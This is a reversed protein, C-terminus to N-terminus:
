PFCTLRILPDTFCIIARLLHPLENIPALHTVTAQPKIKPSLTWELNLGCASVAPKLWCLCPSMHSTKIDAYNLILVSWDARGWQGVMQPRESCVLLHPTLLAWGGTANWVLLLLTTPPHSLVAFSTFHIVGSWAGERFPWKEQDM